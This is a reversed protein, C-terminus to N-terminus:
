AFWQIHSRGLCTAIKSCGMGLCVFLEIFIRGKLILHTYSM